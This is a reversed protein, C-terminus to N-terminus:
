MRSYTYVWTCLDNDQQPPRTFLDFAPPCAPTYRVSALACLSLPLVLFLYCCRVFCIASCFQLTMCGIQCFAMKVPM